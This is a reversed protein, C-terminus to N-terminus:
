EDMKMDLIFKLKAEECPHGYRACIKVYREFTKKKVNYVKPPVSPDTWNPSICQNGTALIGKMHTSIDFTELVGFSSDASSVVVQVMKDGGEPLFEGILYSTDKAEDYKTPKERKKHNPQAELWAVAASINNKCFFVDIDSAKDYDVAAGGAIMINPCKAPLLDLIKQLRSDM